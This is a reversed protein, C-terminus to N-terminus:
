RLPVTVRVRTGGRRRRTITCRGGVERARDMMNRLGFSGTAGVPQDSMALRDPAIGIGNDCILLLVTGSDFRLTMEIHQAQAHKYANFLAEQAIQYLAHEITAGLAQPEPALHVSVRLDSTREFDRALEALAASLNSQAQNITSLEFIASRMRAVANRAMERASCIRTHIQPENQLQARCWELNLGISILYQAVSDHLERAIRSREANVAENQRAVALWRRANEIHRNRQELETRQRCAAEYLATAQARLRESEEYLRANEVAVAAQNALTHLVPIEREDLCFDVGPAVVLAGVVREGHHMPAGLLTPGGGDALHAQGALVRDIAIALYPPLYDGDLALAGDPSRRAVWRRATEDNLAVVAWDAGFHEAAVQVVARALTPVGSTTTCLAASIRAISAIAQDLRRANERYASYYTQRSAKIGTLSELLDERATGDM